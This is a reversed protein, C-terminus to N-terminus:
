DEAVTPALSAAVFAIEREAAHRMGGALERLRTRLMAESADPNRLIEWCVNLLAALEREVASLERRLEPHDATRHSAHAIEFHDEIAVAATHLADHVRRGSHLAPETALAALQDSARLLSHHVNRGSMTPSM